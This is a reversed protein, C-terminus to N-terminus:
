AKKCEDRAPKGKNKKVSISLRPINYYFKKIRCDIAFWARPADDATDVRQDGLM